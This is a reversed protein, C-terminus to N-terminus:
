DENDNSKNEIENSNIFFVNIKIRMIYILTIFTM